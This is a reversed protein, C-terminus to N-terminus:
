VDQLKPLYQQPYSLPLRVVLYDGCHKLVRPTKKKTKETTRKKRKRKKLTYKEASPVDPIGNIFFRISAGQHRCTSHATRKNFSPATYNRRLVSICFVTELFNRSRRYSVCVFLFFFLYIFSLRFYHMLFIVLPACPRHDSSKTPTGPTASIINVTKPLTQGAYHDIIKRRRRCAALYCITRFFNNYFILFCRFVM